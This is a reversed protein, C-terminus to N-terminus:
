DEQERAFVMEARLIDHLTLLGIVRAEVGSQDVVVVLQGASEIMLTQVQRLTTEATCITANQPTPARGGALAEECARRSLVGVLKGEIVVPFQDHRHTALFTRLKEPVLETITVPSFNAIRAVPLEMWTRLSRPPVIREVHQGDQALVEEYFNHPTVRRSIAQSILAGIILAPVLAFEHTMEFVILIGTVPARVVGGLCACMGVVALMVHDGATLPLVLAALASIAAGAMGGFFLTPAFVGGCGGLGYCVATAVLKAALLLAAIQWLMGGNLATSLDDYGLSFVGLHGTGLFVAAGVAWVFIGGLMVRSWAPLRQPRKNILRLGLAMKQFWCGALTAVAAVLPTLVYGAWHANGVSHLTFAPQAGLLGHAVLAGLVSALLVSGLMRSNLDGIIEELVFTVAAIPTNFAAALGAAAGAATATRRMHKPTGLAGAVNSALASALQVSPGERGLSSGGGVSLAGGIFKVWVVRWPILGFDRWFALKVQPIGSGAAEICFATLLWGSIGSTVGVLLFSGVLFWTTSQHSLAEIGHAYIVHIALHFAVAILGAALGFIVTATIARAQPPM